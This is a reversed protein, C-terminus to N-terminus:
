GREGRNDRLSGVKILPPHLPLFGASARARRTRPARPPDGGGEPLLRPSAADQVKVRRSPGRPKTDTVLPSPHEKVGRAPRLHHGPRPPPPPADGSDEGCEPPVPARPSPRWSNGSGAGTATGRAGRDGGGGGAGAPAVTPEARGTWFSAARQGATEAERGTGRKHEGEGEAGGGREGALLYDCGNETRPATNQM